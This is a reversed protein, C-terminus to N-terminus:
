VASVELFVPLFYSISLLKWLFSTICTCYSFTKFNKITWLLFMFDWLIRHCLGHAWWEANATVLEHGIKDWKQGWRSEEGVTLNNPLLYADYWKSLSTVWDHRVRQSGISQLRSPDEMWPIEWALISSHTAIEKELPDEWGLSRVWTEWMTPLHKVIQAVLSTRWVMKDTYIETWPFSNFIFLKWPKSIYSCPHFFWEIEDDKATGLNM